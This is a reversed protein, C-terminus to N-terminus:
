PARALVWDIHLWSPIDMSLQCEPHVDSRMNTFWYAGLQMNGTVPPTGQAVTNQGVKMVYTDPDPQDDGCCGPCNCLGKPEASVIFGNGFDMSEGSGFRGIIVPIGGKFVHVGAVMCPDHGEHVTFKVTVCTNDGAVTAKGLQWPMQFKVGLSIPTGACLQDNKVSFGDEYVFLRGSLEKDAMENCEALTVPKLPNLAQLAPVLPAPQHPALEVVCADINPLDLSGTTDVPMSTSVDTTGAVGSTGGASTGPGTTVGGSTPEVSTATQPTPDTTSGGVSTAVGTSGGVSAASTAVATAESAGSAATDTLFAPNDVTCGLACSLLM